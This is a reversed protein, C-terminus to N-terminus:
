RIQVIERYLMELADHDLRVPHNQMREPNVSEVLMGIDSESVAPATLELAHVTERFRTAADEPTRCGMADAIECLVSRLYAAGGQLTCDEAHAIMYPFLASVCLAAAHGHAIGYETTLKYCMAHGATTKTLNIAQGALNSASLMNHLGDPEGALYTDKNAMILRIAQVALPKSEASAHVSWLSEVAHCLADMMAAKKQYVPLSRLNEPDLLVASPLCSDHEVSQKVGERYIVAFRTAESGSGATTPVALLPVQNATIEQTLYDSDDPMKCFVKICKATDMASGGGVAAIMDCNAARFAAIGDLIATYEPNPSFGSFRVVRIHLRSELTRFYADLPLFRISSGCVLFLTHVGHETLYADLSRYNEDKPLLTQM